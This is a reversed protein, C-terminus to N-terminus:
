AQHCIGQAVSGDQQGSKLQAEQKKSFSKAWDILSKRFM